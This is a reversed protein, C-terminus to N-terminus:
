TWKQVWRWASSWGDVVNAVGSVGDVDEDVRIFFRTRESNSM